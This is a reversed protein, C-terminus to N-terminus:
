PKTLAPFPRKIGRGIAEALQVYAMTTAMNTHGARQMIAMPPDGRAAWWTLGTGRLDHWTLPKRGADTASVHLEARRVGALWLYRRLRTPMAHLPPMPMVRDDLAEKKMQKLVPLLAPEIEVHHARAHSKLRKTSEGTARQQAHVHILGHRLDVDPWHLARLESSRLATAYAVSVCLENGATHIRISTDWRPDDKYRNARYEVHPYVHNTM